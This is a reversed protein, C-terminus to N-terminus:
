YCIACTLADVAFVRVAEEDPYTVVEEMELMELQLSDFSSNSRGIPAPLHRTDGKFLFDAHICVSAQSTYHPCHPLSLSTQDIPDYLTLLNRALGEEPSDELIVLDVSITFQAPSLICLSRLSWM